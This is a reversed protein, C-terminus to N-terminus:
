QMQERMAALMDAQEQDRPLMNQMARTGKEAADAGQQAAALMQQQAQQQMRANRKKGLEEGSLVLDPPTGLLDAYTDM